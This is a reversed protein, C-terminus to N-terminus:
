TDTKEPKASVDCAACIRGKKLAAKAKAELTEKLEGYIENSTKPQGQKNKNFPNQTQWETLMRPAKKGCGSCPVQVRQKLQLKEFRHTVSRGLM